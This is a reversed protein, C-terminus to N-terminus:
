LFGMEVGLARFSGSGSWVPWLSPPLQGGGSTKRNLCQSGWVEMEAEPPGTLAYVEPLLMSPMGALHLSGGRSFFELYHFSSVGDSPIQARPSVERGSPSERAYWDFAMQKRITFHHPCSLHISSDPLTWASALAHMYTLSNDFDCFFNIFFLFVVSSISFFIDNHYVMIPYSGQYFLVQTHDILLSMKVKQIEYHYAETIIFFNIIKNEVYLIQFEVEKKRM